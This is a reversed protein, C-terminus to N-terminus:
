LNKNKCAFENELSRHKSFKMSFATQKATKARLIMDFKDVYLFPDSSDLKLPDNCEERRLYNILHLTRGYKPPEHGGGHPLM